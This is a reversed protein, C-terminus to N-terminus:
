YGLGEREYLSFFYRDNEKDRRKRVIKQYHAATDYLYTYCIRTDNDMEGGKPPYVGLGISQSM